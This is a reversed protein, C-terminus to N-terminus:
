ESKRELTLNEVDLGSIDENYWVKGDRDLRCTFSTSNSLEINEEKYNTINM